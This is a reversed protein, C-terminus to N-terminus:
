WHWVSLIATAKGCLGAWFSCTGRKEFTRGFILGNWSSCIATAIVLYKIHAGEKDRKNIHTSMKARSPAGPTPVMIKGNAHSTVITCCSEYITLPEFSTHTGVRTWQSWPWEVTSGGRRLLSCRHSWSSSWKAETSAPFLKIYTKGLWRIKENIILPQLIYSLASNSPPLPKLWKSHNAFSEPCM